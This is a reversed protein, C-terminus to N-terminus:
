CGFLALGTPLVLSWLGLAVESAAGLSCGVVFGVIAPLTREARRCAKAVSDRDCAANRGPGFAYYEDDDGRHATRRPAFDPCARKARGNGLGWAHRRFDRASGQPDVHPGAAIGPALFRALLFLQFLLLPLLAALGISALGGALVRTVGPALMLMTVSLVDSVQAADGTVVHAALIVLNATVRRHFSWGSRSFRHYRREGCDRQARDSAADLM